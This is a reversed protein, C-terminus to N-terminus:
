TYEQLKRLYADIRERQNKANTYGSNSPKARNDSNLAHQNVTSRSLSTAQNSKQTSLEPFLRKVLAPRTHSLEVLEDVTMDNAKAVKLVVDNVKEGYTANLDQKVQQFNAKRAAEQQDNALQQRVQNVIEDSSFSPQQQDLKGKDPSQKSRIQEMIEEVSAAKALRQEIETFRVDDAKRESVLREIHQDANELKRILDEETYEKGQYTLVPSKDLAKGEQHVSNGKEEASEGFPTTEAKTDESFDTM